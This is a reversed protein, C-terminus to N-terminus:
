LHHHELPSSAAKKSAHADQMTCIKTCKAVCVNVTHRFADCRGRFLLLTGKGTIVQWILFGKGSSQATTQLVGM